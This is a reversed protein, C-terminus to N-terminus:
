QLAPILMNSHLRRHSPLVTTISDLPPFNMNWWYPGELSASSIHEKAVVLKPTRCIGVCWFPSREPSVPTGYM